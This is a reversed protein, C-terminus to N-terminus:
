GSRISCANGSIRGIRSKYGCDSGVANQILGVALYDVLHTPVRTLRNEQWQGDSQGSFNEVATWLAQADIAEAFQM